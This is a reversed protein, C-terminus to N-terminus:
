IIKVNNIKLIHKITRETINLELSLESINLRPYSNLICQEDDKTYATIVENM